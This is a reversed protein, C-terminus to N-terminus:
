FMEGLWSLVNERSAYVCPCPTQTCACRHKSAEVVRPTFATAADAERRQILSHFVDLPLTEMQKM